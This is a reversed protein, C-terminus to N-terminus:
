LIIHFLSLHIRLAFSRARLALDLFFPASPASLSALSALQARLSHARLAPLNNKQKTEISPHIIKTAIVHIRLPTEKDLVKLFDIKKQKTEISPHIILSYQRLIKCDMDSYNQNYLESCHSARLSRFTKKM